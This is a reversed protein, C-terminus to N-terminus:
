DAGNEKAIRDDDDETATVASSLKGRRIGKEILALWMEDDASVWWAKIGRATELPLILKTRRGNAWLLKAWTPLLPASTARDLMAIFRAQTDREKVDGLVYFPQGIELHPLAAQHHLIVMHEAGSEPLRMSRTVYGGELRRFVQRGIEIADGNMLAAWVARVATRYGIISLYVVGNRDDDVAYGAGFVRLGNFSVAGTLGPAVALLSDSM